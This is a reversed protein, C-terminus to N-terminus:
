SANEVTIIEEVANPRDDIDIFELSQFGFRRVRKGIKMSQKGDEAQTFAHVPYSGNTNLHKAVGLPITYMEGDILDFREVADQKYKKFVFSLSGGPVEYFRFIGKVKERDRDRQFKLSPKKSKKDTTQQANTM